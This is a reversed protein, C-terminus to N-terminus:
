PGRYSFLAPLSPRPPPLPFCVCFWTCTGVENKHKGMNVMSFEIRNPGCKSRSFVLARPQAQDTTWYISLCLPAHSKESHSEPITTSPTNLLIVKARVATLEANWLVHRGMQKKKENECLKNAHSAPSSTQRLPHSRSGMRLQKKDACRPEDDDKPHPQLRLHAFLTFRVYRTRCSKEKM